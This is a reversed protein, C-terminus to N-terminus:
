SIHEVITRQIILLGWVVHCVRAPAPLKKLHLANSFFVPALSYVKHYRKALKQERLAKQHAAAAQNAEELQKETRKRISDPLGVQVFSASSTM